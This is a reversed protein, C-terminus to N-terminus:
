LQLLPTGCQGHLCKAQLHGGLGGKGPDSENPSHVHDCGLASQMAVELGKFYKMYVISIHKPVYM